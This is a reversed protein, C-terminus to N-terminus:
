YEPFAEALTVMKLKKARISDLIPGFHNAAVTNNAHDIVIRGNQVWRHINSMITSPQVRYDDTGFEGLWMMPSTFGAEAAASLVNSNWYGYPPRWFTGGDVGFEDELFHKCDLLQKQVGHSTLTRLDKHTHTHNALQVQGNHILERLGHANQKWSAYMSTVFYTYKIDPNRLAHDVYTAISKTSVGDDITWAWRPEHSQPLHYAIRNRKPSAPASAESPQAVAVATAALGATGLTLFTRRDVRVLITQGCRHNARGFSTLIPASEGHPTV